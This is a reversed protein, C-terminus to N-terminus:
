GGFETWLLSFSTKGKFNQGVKKFTPPAQM